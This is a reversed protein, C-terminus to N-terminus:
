GTLMTHPYPRPDPHVPNMAMLPTTRQYRERRQRQLDRKGETVNMHVIQMKAAYAFARASRGEGRIARRKRLWRRLSRPLIGVVIVIVARDASRDKEYRARERRRWRYQRHRDTELPDLMREIIRVAAGFRSPAKGKLRASRGCGLSRDLQIKPMRPAENVNKCRRAGSFFRPANKTLEVDRLKGGSLVVASAHTVAGATQGDICCRFLPTSHKTPNM